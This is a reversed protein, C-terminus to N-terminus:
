VTLPDLAIGLKDFLQQLFPMVEPTGEVPAWPASNGPSHPEYPGEKIEYVATGSELATITHYCNEAFEIGLVGSERSLITHQDVSGDDKFAVALVKGRLLVFCEEKATHKHPRIYTWPELVNLMRQVPDSHDPHFNYNMRRRPSLRAQESVKDILLTTIETISM